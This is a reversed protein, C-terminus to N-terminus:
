LHRRKSYVKAVCEKWITDVILEVTARETVNIDVYRAYRLMTIYIHAHICICMCMCLGNVYKNAISVVNKFVEFVIIELIEM